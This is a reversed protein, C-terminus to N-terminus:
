LEGCFARHQLSSFLSDSEGLISRHAARVKLLAAIRERYKTQIALPPRGIKIGRVESANINAMGIISKCMGRLVRKAYPTNMFGALYEPDNEANTRLRILYGAYAMPEVERFIATKGVLEASNTRNFLVDGPRALYRETESEDLDMYKLDALDMEGTRTINNMRLVPYRGVAGAKESTGYSASELLDGVTVVPWRKSGTAPDGFMEVFISQALRDLQALAERRKTRLADAKDLIAAIRRQESLSPLPLDLNLCRDINLNSINTTKQGFSRLLSQIRDSGFWWYLYRRDVHEWDGRLVSVFGGFTARWPLVPVWCCKGVLNWSNASSVLVDGDQLYQDARRVLQPPVALVDDCDLLTQVNKTRMCIVAEDADPQVVDDPKFTIGRVFEAVDGLKAIPNTV